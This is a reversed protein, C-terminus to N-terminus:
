SPTSTFCRLLFICLKMIKRLINPFHCQVNLPVKESSFFLSLMFLFLWIMEFVYHYPVSMGWHTLLSFVPTTCDTINVYRLFSFALLCSMILLSPIRHCLLALISGSDDLFSFRSSHFIIGLSSREQLTPHVVIKM